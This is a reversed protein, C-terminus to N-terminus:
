KVLAPAISYPDVEVDVDVEDELAPLIASNVNDAFWLATVSSIM